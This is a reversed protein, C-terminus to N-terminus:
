IAEMLTLESAVVETFMREMGSADTYKSQKIRGVVKVLDGKSLFDLPEGCGELATITHWTTEVLPVSGVNVSMQTCLSFTAVKTGVIDQLRLTGIRGQLEVRNIHEM